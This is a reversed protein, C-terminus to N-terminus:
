PRLRKMLDATHGLRSELLGRKRTSTWPWACLPAGSLNIVVDFTEGPALAAAARVCHAAGDFQRAARAPNRTVLTVAHGDGLLRRTLASGIFGTGGAILFKLSPAGVDLLPATSNDRTVPSYKTCTGSACRRLGLHTSIPLRHRAFWAYARDFLDALLPWGTFTIMWGRGLTRYLHRVASMGKQWTGDPLRIHLLANMTAVSVPWAAADFDRATIDILALRQARDWRRLRQTEASCVPCAGDYFVLTQTGNASNM